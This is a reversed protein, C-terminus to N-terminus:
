EPEDEDRVKRIMKLFQDMSPCRQAVDREICRSIATALTRNIRPRYERIDVPPRTAHSMAAQGTTGREWPLEYTMIEYATVGFSFVDLRQDTRQRRVLEPAMYNPTGTRNGPELFRGHAPVTLGFDILKLRKGEDLVMLNRPCVDRHIFGAAHVARVAEAAQRILEVRNGALVRENRGILLSNMGQGDLFEMVLYQQGRTTLGHELTKVINPHDFQIAIEGESPKNLGKFRAEFDATKKADLVKLGVIQGTKRDRAMYFDSMTGSIAERLIEFRSRIDVRGGGLLSKLNGLIGM